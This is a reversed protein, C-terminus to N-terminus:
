TEWDGKERAYLLVREMLPVLTGANDEWSEYSNERTLKNVQEIMEWLRGDKVRERKLERLIM